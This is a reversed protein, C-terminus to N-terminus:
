RSGILMAVLHQASISDGTYPNGCGMLRELAALADPLAALLTSLTVDTSAQERATVKIMRM